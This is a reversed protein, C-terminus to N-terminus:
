IVFLKIRFINERKETDAYRLQKYSSKWHSMNQKTETRIDKQVHPIVAFENETQTVKIMLIIVFVSPVCVTTDQVFLYIFIELM